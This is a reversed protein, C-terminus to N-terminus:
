HTATLKDAETKVINETKEKAGTKVFASNILDEIKNQIKEDAKYETFINDIQKEARKELDSYTKGFIYSFVGLGALVIVSIAWVLNKFQTQTHSRYEKTEELILDSHKDLIRRVELEVTTKIEPDIM